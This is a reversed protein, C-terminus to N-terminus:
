ERSEPSSIVSVIQRDFLERSTTAESEPFEAYPEGILRSLHSEGKADKEGGRLRRSAILPQLRARIRRVSDVLSPIEPRM